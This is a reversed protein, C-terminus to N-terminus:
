WTRCTCHWGGNGDGWPFHTASLLTQHHACFHACGKGCSLLTLINNAVLDQLRPIKPSSDRVAPTMM